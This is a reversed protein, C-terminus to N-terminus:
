RKLQMLKQSVTEAFDMLPTSRGFVPYTREGGAFALSLVTTGLWGLAALAIGGLACLVALIPLARAAAGVFRFLAHLAAGVGSANAAVDGAAADAVTALPSAIGFLVAAVVIAVVGWIVRNPDHIFAVRVSGLGALPITEVEDDSRHVICNAYLTLHSGRRPGRTFAFRAIAAGGESM